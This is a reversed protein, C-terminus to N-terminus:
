EEALARRIMFDINANANQYKIVICPHRKQWVRFVEDAFAQGITLVSVFDLIITKFKDLGSLIRRAQSRSIYDTDMKYLDVVVKTTAFEFAEGSYERFIESLGRKSKSSVVFEVDTGRVSKIDKIFIDSLVNDFILIKESSKIILKDGAKSTFFIGEGTHEAPATTQKGKLLDQIAELDNQLDRKERINRFIGVGKDIIRFNIETNHKNVIVIIKKSRSHEIANNLMETFAYELVDFVNKSLGSFIGTEEKIEDFVADESLNHNILTRRFHAIREKVAKVTKSSALVYKARNTKGLLVIKGDRRLERFFRNIYARSFGSVKVLDAAKVEGRRKLANFILAKIDM